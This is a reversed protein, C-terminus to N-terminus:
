IFPQVWCFDSLKPMHIKEGKVIPVSWLGPVDYSTIGKKESKTSCMSMFFCTKFFVPIARTARFNLSDNM